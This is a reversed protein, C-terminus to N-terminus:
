GVVFERARTIAPGSEPKGAKIDATFVVADGVAPRCSKAYKDYPITRHQALFDGTDEDHLDDLGMLEITGIRTNGYFLKSFRARIRITRGVCEELMAAAELFM